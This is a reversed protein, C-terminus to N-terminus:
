PAPAQARTIRRQEDGEGRQSGACRRGQFRLVVLSMHGIECRGLQFATVGSRRLEFFRGCINRVLEFGEAQFRGAALIVLLGESDGDVRMQAAVVMQPDVVGAFFGLQNGPAIINRETKGSGAFERAAHNERAIADGGRVQM